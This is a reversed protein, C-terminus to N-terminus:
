LHCLVRVRACARMVSVTKNIIASSALQKPDGISLFLASEDSERFQNPQNIKRAEATAAAGATQSSRPM